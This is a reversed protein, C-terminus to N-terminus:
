NSMTTGCQIAYQKKNVEEDEVVVTFCYGTNPDLGPIDVTLQQDADTYQQLNSGRHFDSWIGEAKTAEDLATEVNPGIEDEDTKQYLDILEDSNLAPTYYISYKLKYPDTTVADEAQFFLLNMKDGNSGVVYSVHIATGAITPPTNDGPPCYAALNGFIDRVVVTVKYGEDHTIPATVAPHCDMHDTDSNWTGHCPRGYDRILKISTLKKGTSYFPMYYLPKKIGNTSVCTDNECSRYDCDTALTWTINIPEGASTKVNEMEAMVGYNGPVPSYIDQPPNSDIVYWVKGDSLFTVYSNKVELFLKNTRGEIPYQKTIDYYADSVEPTGCQITVVNSLIDCAEAGCGRQLGDDTKKITFKQGNSETPNPLTITINGSALVLGQDDVDLTKNEDVENVLNTIKRTDIANDAIDEATVAGNMIKDSTISDDVLSRGEIMDNTINTSDFAILVNPSLKDAYAARIAYMASTLKTKETMVDGGNVSIGIYETSDIVTETLPNTEGLTVSVIGNIVKVGTHPESWMVANQDQAYLYFTMNVETLEAAGSSALNCQYSVTTPVGAFAITSGIGMILAMSLLGTLLKMGKFSKM